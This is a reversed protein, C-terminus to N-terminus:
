QTLGMSIYTSIYTNAKGLFNNSEFHFSKFKFVSKFYSQYVQLYFTNSTNLIHHNLFHNSVSIFIIQEKRSIRLQLTGNCADWVGLTCDSCQLDRCIWLILKVKIHFLSPLLVSLYFTVNSSSYLHLWIIGLIHWIASLNLVCFLVLELYLPM